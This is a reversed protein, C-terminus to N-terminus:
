AGLRAATLSGIISTGKLLGEKNIAPAYDNGRRHNEVMKEARFGFALPM